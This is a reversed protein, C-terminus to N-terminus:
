TLFVVQLKFVDISFHMHFIYRLLKVDLNLIGRRLFCVKPYETLQTQDSKSKQAPLSM